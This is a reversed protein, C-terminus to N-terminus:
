PQAAARIMERCWAVVAPDLPPDPNATYDIRLDYRAATYVRAFLEGLHLIPEPEGKQLPIPIDPITETVNFPFLQGQPRAWGRSVLIRYHSPPTHSMPMPEGARLLDIEVLGTRTTIVEQRKDEYENRGKGALKNSPSLIEIATIVRHTAADRIELYGQEIRDWAPLTITISRELLAVPANETPPMPKGIIAVDPRGIFGYPEITAIYTRQEAAIYYRPAVEPALAKVIEGILLTHVGQWLSGKELYPDMGPFPSKM